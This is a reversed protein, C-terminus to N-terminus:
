FLSLEWPVGLQRSQRGKRSETRLRLWSNVILVACTADRDTFDRKNMQQSRCFRYGALLWHRWRILRELWM